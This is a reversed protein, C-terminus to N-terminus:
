SPALRLRRPPRSSTGFRRLRTTAATMTESLGDVCQQVRAVDVTAGTFALVKAGVELADEVFETVDGDGEPDAYKSAGSVIDPQSTRLSHVVAEGDVIEADDLLHHVESTGHTSAGGSASLM